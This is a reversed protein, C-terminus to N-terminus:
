VCPGSSYHFREVTLITDFHKRKSNGTEYSDFVVCSMYEPMLNAAYIQVMSNTTFHNKALWDIGMDLLPLDIDRHYDKLCKAATSKTDLGEYIYDIDEKTWQVKKTQWCTQPIQYMYSIKAEEVRAEKDTDFSKLLWIKECGENLMKPRWPNRKNKGNDSATMLPIKGVRFRYNEDCMLYVAHQGCVDNLKVFTRHNPTYSSKYRESSHITIMEDNVFDRVSTELVKRHSTNATIKVGSCAQTEKNYYVLSDGIEVDEINKIIGDRLLVKTGAPQCQQPDGIFVKKKCVIRDFIAVQTPDVDQFEDIFIADIETIAEKYFTLVDFLYLPLDTFDYLNNARKYNVYDGAIVMFTKKISDDVDINYNGMVYHFLQYKNLSYQGRRRCLRQLIDKITEDDLMEVTFGYKAAYKQLQRYSWSHITSVEVRYDGIRTKLEETAKKTFTIAVIHDQPNNVQYEKVAGVISLTKGSGPPATVVIREEGAKIFELQKENFNYKM